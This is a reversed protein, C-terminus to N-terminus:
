RPVPTARFAEGAKDVTVIGPRFHPGALMAGRGATEGLFALRAERAKNADSDFVLTVDPRSMQVALSHIMDGIFVMQKDGSRLRYISHGPTHGILPEATLGPAIETPATFTRVRGKYADLIRRANDFMGKAEAPAKAGAAADGWFGAEAAHLHITARPFVPKGEADLLGGLHDGHMHTIAIADVQAPSTKAAALAANFGGAGGNGTDILVRKGGTEVLFAWVTGFWAPKGDAGTTTEGGAELLPLADETTIGAFLTAPFPARGDLLAHVKASGVAVTFNAPEAASASTAATAEPSASPSCAAMACALAFTLRPPTM